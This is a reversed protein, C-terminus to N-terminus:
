RRSCRAPAQILGPRRDPRPSAACCGHSRISCVPSYDGYGVTSITIMTFYAAESLTMPLTDYSARYNFYYDFEPVEGLSEVMYILCAFVFILMVFLAATCM